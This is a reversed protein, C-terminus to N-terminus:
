KNGCFSKLMIKLAFFFSIFFHIEESLYKAAANGHRGISGVVVWVFTSSASRGFM